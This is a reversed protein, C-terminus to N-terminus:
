PLTIGLAVYGLGKHDSVHRLDRLWVHSSDAELAGHLGADVTSPFTIIGASSSSSSIPTSSLQHRRPRSRDGWRSIIAYAAKAHPDPESFVSDNYLSPKATSPVSLSTSSSTTGLPASFTKAAMEGFEEMDEADMYDEPRQQRQPPAMGHGEEDDEVGGGGGGVSAGSDTVTAAAAARARDRSSVFTSPTWGEKSGVTNYYGASFGGTFAGHFRRRGQEDFVMQDEPKLLANKSQALVLAKSSSSSSSTSGRTSDKAQVAAEGYKRVEDWDIPTGILVLNTDDADADSDDDEDDNNDDNESPSVDDSKGVRSGRGGTRSSFSDRQDRQSYSRHRGRAHDTRTYSGYDDKVNNKVGYQQGKHSYAQRPKDDEDYYDQDAGSSQQLRYSRM